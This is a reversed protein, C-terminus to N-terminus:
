RSTRATPRAPPSRSAARSNNISAGGSVVRTGSPCKAGLPGKAALTARAASAQMHEADVTGPRTTAYTIAHRYDRAQQGPRNDLEVDTRM